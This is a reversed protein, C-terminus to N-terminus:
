KSAAQSSQIPTFEIQDGLQTGSGAIAGVPLELCCKAKRYMGSVRGPAFNELLGVVQWNRDFFLVDIAFRMGLMHIQSCPRLLLGEGEPLPASFLLGVLRTIFNDAVRVNAAVVTNRTVNRLM